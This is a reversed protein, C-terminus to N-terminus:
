SCDMSFVARLGSVLARIGQITLQVIDKAWNLDLMLRTWLSDASKLGYARKTIVRAKNNIGEVAGSTQRTPFYNLILERWTEYTRVVKALEPFADIADLCLETLALAARRRNRTTDFITKFRVRLEYLTQLAPLEAFLRELQLQETKTLDKPDRRFQWM